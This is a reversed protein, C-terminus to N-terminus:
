IISIISGGSKAIRDEAQVQIIAIANEYSDAFVIYPFDMETNNNKLYKFIINYM